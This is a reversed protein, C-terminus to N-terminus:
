RRFLVPNANISAIGEARFDDPIVTTNDGHLQMLVQADSTYEPWQPRESGLGDNPDLSTTFSIWYDIVVKALQLAAISANEGPLRGFLYNEDVAHFVGLFPPIGLNAPPPDSFVYGFSKIGMKSATQSLARRHAIFFLDGVVAAYRKFQPNLGFAENGTNYPCGLAPINPYLEVVHDIAAELASTPVASVSYNSLLGSTITKTSDTSTPVFATGEDLVDGAIFPLHAFQGAQLLKSPLGPIVGGPGDITPVWPFQENARGTAIGIADVLASPDVTRLCDLSTSNTLTYQCEPVARVFNDWDAQRHSAPFSPANAFTGSQFIMARTFNGMAPNLMLNAIVMSGASIGFTTVKTRDGGFAGINDQIWRFAVMADRLGLNLVGADEAEQGPAFGLPGLRYNFSAFVIPTGRSVSQAVIGTADDFSSGQTSFGGGHVWVLVPFLENKPPLGVPRIVNVTLCDESIPTIISVPVTQLCSPGFHTANITGMGLSAKRVPRRFRLDGVPPEAYPIGGFFELGPAPISGSLLARGLKITPEACGGSIISLLWIIFLDM